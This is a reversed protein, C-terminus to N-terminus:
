GVRESGCTPAAAARYYREVQAAVSWSLPRRCMLESTWVGLVALMPLQARSRHCSARWALMAFRDSIVLEEQLKMLMDVQFTAMLHRVFTAIKVIIKTICNRCVSLWSHSAFSVLLLKRLENHNLDCFGTDTFM